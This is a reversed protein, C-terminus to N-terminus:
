QGIQKLQFDITSRSEGNRLILGRFKGLFHFLEGAESSVQGVISYGFANARSGSVLVDNDRQLFQGTGDLHPLALFAESCIEALPDIFPIATQWVLLPVKAGKVRTKISGDPRFVLLRDM